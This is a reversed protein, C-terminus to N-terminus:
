NCKTNYNCLVLYAARKWFPTAYNSFDFLYIWLCKFGDGLCSKQIMEFGILIKWSRDFYSRIRGYNVQCRNM